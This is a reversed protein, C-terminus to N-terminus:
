KNTLGLLLYFRAYV